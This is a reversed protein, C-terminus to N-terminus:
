KSVKGQASALKLVSYFGLVLIYIYIYNRINGLASGLMYRHWFFCVNVLVILCLLYLVPDRRRLSSRIGYNLLAVLSIWMPIFFLPGAFGFVLLSEALLNGAISYGAGHLAQARVFESVYSSDGGFLSLPVPFLALWSVFVRGLDVGSFLTENRYVLDFISLQLAPEFGCVLCFGDGFFSDYLLAFGSLGFLNLYTYIYKSIYVLSVGFVAGVGLWKRRLLYGVFSERNSFFFSLFLFFFYFALPTRTGTALTLVALLLTLVAVLKSNSLVGWGITIVSLSLYLIFLPSGGAEAVDYKMVLGSFYLYFFLSVTAAFLIM